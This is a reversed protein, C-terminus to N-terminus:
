RAVPYGDFGDALLSDYAARVDAPVPQPVTYGLEPYEIIRQLEGVLVDIVLKVNGGAAAVYEDIGRPYSSCVLEVEPWQKRATAYPRRELKSVLLVSRPRLGARELLRRSFAINEGTNAARPEVLIADDPVGLSVAHERYHEAEGRPFRAATLPTIGGTFLVAPALGALYLEACRTPVDLDFSGLGIAVDCRRPAHHLQHYEWILRAQRLQEESVPTVTAAKRRVGEPAEDTM